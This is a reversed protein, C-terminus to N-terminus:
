SPIPSQLLVPPMCLFVCQVTDGLTICSVRYVTVPCLADQLEGEVHMMDGVVGPLALRM